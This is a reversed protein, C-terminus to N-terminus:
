SFTWSLRPLCRKDRNNYDAGGAYDNALKTHKAYREPRFAYPDDYGYREAHHLAWTPVFITSDKPILMGEYYDDAAVRHPIGIPAAPRWRMGEKIICNIYPLRQFDSWEPMRETGCVADLEKRAEVQVRPNLALCLVLTLMTSSTTEAGGEVLLGFFHDLEDKGLISGKEAYEDLLKDALSGLSTRIDGRARRDDVRKRAEAWIKSMVEGAYIARRKWPALFLPVYKLFPFEDVPPNAGPELAEGFQTLPNRTLV